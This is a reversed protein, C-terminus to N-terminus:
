QNRLRYLEYYGVTEVLTLHKETFDQLREVDGALLPSEGEQIVFDLGRRYLLVHTFSETQLHAAARDEDGYLYMLHAWNDLIADPQSPRPSYYSRPEWLFLARGDQPVSDELQEM